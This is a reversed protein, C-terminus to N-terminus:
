RYGTAVQGLAHGPPNGDVAILYQFGQCFAQGADEICDLCCQLLCGRFQTRINRFPRYREAMGESWVRTWM